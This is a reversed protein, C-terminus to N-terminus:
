ASQVKKVLGNLNAALGSLEKSANLTQESSVRSEKASNSVLKITRAIEEVGKTSELVVRSVENTTATQEEVSAAIAGAISNLRDMAQSIGGIAEVAASSDSQIAGIKATIDETAKATQKALEKVENAVVAFGKGADGARAAEITANLALLNTQQAISSIVKIVNGIEQSSAGLQAITKNTEQARALTVRSMEASENASRAIEKISAAMEETNTAVTKVGASIQAAASAASQSQENTQESTSSLQTATSTLEAAASALSAATEEMSKIMQKMATIDTAYKVVKYPKGNPDFIPNYSAQIWIEQGNKGLRKYEGSDFEGRKLKDWFNRYETSSVYGSECFMRHHKGKIESLAYGITKLFNDNAHLVEGDMNFEIIAQSKNIADLQGANDYNRNQQETVDSAIKIVKFLRGVEDFVPAYVAQLWLEKGAKSMRKFIGTQAKGSNLDAWFQAYAPSAAYTAEVFLRHHKGTIEEVAYGVAQCFNKNASLITGDPKFEIYAYSNDIANFVGKMNHREIEQATIDYRVGLYKKPKGNEGMIPAIVADVYYPTGDKARNKVVGRFIGGRGITAWMQKFVEKPMDPHRTTNHGKGILEDAPYKSVDLFKQNVNLINGKLDAESVISTLNMIDQRVKLEVKQETIDTAFKVVKYPKGSADLMPNYSALIWIERGTKTLRKFEGAVFEGRGLKAWLEKYEPSSVLESDCFMRHHKGQIEDLAYGTAKLFNENAEIITGDLEFEIVAQSRNMAEVMAVMDNVRAAPKKGLSAKQKAAIKKTM